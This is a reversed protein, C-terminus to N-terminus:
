AVAMVRSSFSYAPRPGTLEVSIGQETAAAGGCEIQRHLAERENRSILLAWNFLEADESRCSSGPDLRHPQRIHPIGGLRELLAAEIRRVGARTAGLDSLSPLAPSKANTETSPQAPEVAADTRAPQPLAALLALRGRLTWEEKGEIYTLFADLRHYEQEIIELVQHSTDVVTGLPFPLVPASSMAQAVIEEHHAVEGRVWAVTQENHIRHIGARAAQPVLSILAAIRRHAVTHLLNCEHLKRQGFALAAGLRTFCFVYAAQRSGRQTGKITSMSQTM